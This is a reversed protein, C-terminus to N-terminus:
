SLSGPLQSKTLKGFAKRHPRHGTVDGPGAPELKLGLEKELARDMPPTPDLDDASRDRDWRGKYRLVFDYKGTLATNDIVPRGFQATLMKAWNGM